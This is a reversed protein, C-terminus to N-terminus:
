LSWALKLRGDVQDTAVSAPNELSSALLFKRNLLRDLDVQKEIELGGLRQPKRGL